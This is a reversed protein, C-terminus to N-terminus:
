LIYIRIRVFVSHCNNRPCRIGRTSEVCMVQEAHKLHFCSIRWIFCRVDFLFEVNHTNRWLFSNGVDVDKLM